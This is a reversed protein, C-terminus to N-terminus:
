KGCAAPTCDVVVNTVNATAVTGSGNTVVCTQTPSSPQTAVAVSYAAGSSLGAAVTFAGPLSVALSSGGNNQLVLGSGSLGDVTSGVTYSAMPMSSSSGGSCAALLM